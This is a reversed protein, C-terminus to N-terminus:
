GKRHTSEIATGKEQEVDRPEVDFLLEIILKALANCSKPELVANDYVAMAINSQYGYYLDDDGRLHDGTTKRAEAFEPVDLPASAWANLEAVDVLVGGETEQIPIYLGWSARSNAVRRNEAFHKAIQLRANAYQFIPPDEPADTPTGCEWLAQYEELPAGNQLRDLEYQMASIISTRLAISEKILSKARLQLHDITSRFKRPNTELTVAYRHSWCVCCTDHVMKYETTIVDVSPCDGQDCDTDDGPYHECAYCEATVARRRTSISVSDVGLWTAIDQPPLEEFAKLTSIEVDAIIYSITMESIEMMATSELPAYDRLDFWTSGGGVWTLEDNETVVFKIEDYMSM